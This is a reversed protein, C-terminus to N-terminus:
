RGGARPRGDGPPLGGHSRHSWTRRRPHRAPRRASRDIDRLGRQLRRDRIRRCPPRLSHDRPRLSERQDHMAAAMAHAAQVSASVDAALQAQRAASSGRRAVASRHQAGLKDWWIPVNVSITGLIPDNGSQPTNPLVTSADVTSYDLGLTFDPYYELAAARVGIDDRAVAARAAELDQNSGLSLRMVEALSPLTPLAPDAYRSLAAAPTADGRLAAMRAIVGTREAELQSIRTGVEETAVQARIVDGLSGQNTEVQTTAAEASQRLLSQQDRLVLIAADARYLDALLARGRAFADRLAARYQWYAVRADAASRAKATGLKGPFPIKQSVGFRQRIAGTRTQVSTLYYGYNITPDPLSAVVEPMEAMALWEFRASEVGPNLALVEALYRDAFADGGHGARAFTLAVALGLLRFSIFHSFHFILIKLIRATPRASARWPFAAPLPRRPLAM